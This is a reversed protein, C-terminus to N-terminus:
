VIKVVQYYCWNVTCFLLFQQEFLEKGDDCMTKEMGFSFRRGKKVNM